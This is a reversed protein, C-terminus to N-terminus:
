RAAQQAAAPALPVPMFERLMSGSTPDYIRVMGDFGGVAVEKGDPRFAVSYVAGHESAFRSVLKADAANYVRVEGAGDSSSGAVIRAGDASFRVSFIRGPMAEFARILNFDDGIQRAKTRHMQYIKPTGDAGGVLLEDNKPNRDITMLGGKLAGPTISTINDVFRETAVENLKMSRDRSISVLHSSDASFVTDLVWDSHAGQFFVQKGTAAEIARCTNDACGFAVKTGDTSWSAGYITDYTVLSSLKLKGTAVDWIQVEGFRGPSGGTVALSKGDPSFRASEIRESLGVLRAAISGSTESAADTKHLLVEHYGSVALLSSDPSFDLSTLVPPAAYTPPHDRDVAIETAEPTDDKAGETIWRRVLEVQDPKLAPAGKPMAPPEQGSPLIQTLLESEDPKGPVVGPHESEGGKKLAAYSTLALGGLAKAPQHCGQCRDQLIPRIDRYFSVPPREAPKPGEARAPTCWLLAVAPFSLLVLRMLKM